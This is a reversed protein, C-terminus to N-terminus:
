RRPTPEPEGSDVPSELALLQRSRNLTLPILHTTVRAHAVLDAYVGAVVGEIESRERRPFRACLSSVVSELEDHVMPEAFTTM